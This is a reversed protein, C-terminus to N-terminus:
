AASRREADVPRDTATSFIAGDMANAIQFVHDHINWNLHFSLNAPGKRNREVKAMFSPLGLEHGLGQSPSSSIRWRSWAASADAMDLRLLICRTKYKEATLLLRRTATLNLLKKTPTIACLACIGPTALAQETAWLADLQSNARVLLLRDLPVGFQALGEANPLGDEFFDQEPAAWFIMGGQSAMMAWALAFGLASAHDGPTQPIIENLPADVVGARISEFSELTRSEVPFPKEQGRALHLAAPDNFINM